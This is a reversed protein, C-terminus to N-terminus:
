RSRILHSSISGCVQSGLLTLQLYALESCVETECAASQFEISATASLQMSARVVSADSRVVAGKLTYTKAAAATVPFVASGNMSDTCQAEKVVLESSPTVYELWFCVKVDAPHDFTADVTEVEFSCGVEHVSESQTSLPKLRMNFPAVAAAAATTKAAATTSVATKALDPKVDNNQANHSAISVTPVAQSNHRV